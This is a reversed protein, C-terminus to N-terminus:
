AFVDARVPGVRAFLRGSVAFMFSYLRRRVTKEDYKTSGDIEPAERIGNKLKVDPKDDGTYVCLGFDACM